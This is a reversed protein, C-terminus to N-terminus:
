ADMLTAVVGLEKLKTEVEERYIPNMLIVKGPKFIKLFDPAVIEQGTGSVHRGQKHPNIDVINRLEDGIKLMNVFSVAKAGGGWIVVRQNERSMEELRQRWSRSRQEVQATFNHAASVLQAVDEAEDTVLEGESKLRAEISLFQGGYAEELRLIEFGSSRFAHSLSERGFYNCHEYIIDWVSLGDLIFRVNPVEFYVITAKREGVTRRVTALFSMPDAIHELVHRCCILDAGHSTHKEGYFDRHYTLRSAASSQVRAGEYSPDFGVGRNNGAECLLSLFHGKGCGIEVIEKDRLGYTEILRSALAKAYDQFVSSFELANDYRQSYEIKDPDFSTNWIFGCRPCIALRLDGKLCGRAEETSPWQVGISVPIESLEFFRIPKDFRCVLCSDPMPNDPTLYLFIGCRVIL